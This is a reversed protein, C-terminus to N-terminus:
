AVDEWPLLDGGRESDPGRDYGRGRTRGRGLDAEDDRDRDRSGSRAESDWRRRLVTGIQDATIEWVTRKNGDSGTWERQALRGHVIVAAGKTLDGVAEALTDWAVVTHWDTEQGWNGAADRRRRSTAVRLRAHTKGTPTTRIEPAEGLNGTITILTSSM